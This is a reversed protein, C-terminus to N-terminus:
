KLQIADDVRVGTIITAIGGFLPLTKVQSFGSDAFMTELETVPIFTQISNCLYQYAEKNSAVLRGLLPLITKLYITHGVKMLPNHPRTLELIGFRGHPKLVRHVERICQATNAVNRIGYAITVCDVSCDPLPIAQADGQTFIINRFGLKEAKVKAVNLMEQCFDILHVQASGGRQLYAFAIDGTGACLDLYVQPQNPMVVTNVLKQNWRRHMNLSMIQNCRDYRTAIDAFLHQITEPQRSDYVM